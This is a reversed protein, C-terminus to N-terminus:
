ANDQCRRRRGAYAGLMLMTGLMLYTGPEPVPLKTATFLWDQSPTHDGDVKLWGWGSLGDFGRHGNDDDEDGFRFALGAGNTKETLDFEDGSSIPGGVSNFLATITGTHPGGGAILDDDGPAGSVDKYTFDIDWLGSNDPDHVSGTDLGGFAVGHIRIDTGDYDLFMTSQANDFDFTFLDNSDGAVDYLKDLRLGYFPPAANGDPHNGLKYTGPDIAMALSPIALAFFAFVFTKIRNNFM